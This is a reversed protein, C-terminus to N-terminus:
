RESKRKTLLEFMKELNTDKNLCIQKKNSNLNELSKKWVCLCNEKLEVFLLDINNSLEKIEEEYKYINNKLENLANQISEDKLYKNTKELNSLKKEYKSLKLKSLERSDNLPKSTSNYYEAYLKLLDEIVKEEKSYTDFIVKLNIKRDIQDFQSKTLSKNNKNDNKKTFFLKNNSKYIEELELKLHETQDKLRKLSFESYIEFYQNSNIDNFLIDVYLNKGLSEFARNLYLTISNCIINDQLDLNKTKDTSDNNIVKLLDNQFYTFIYGKIPKLEKPYLAELTQDIQIFQQHITFFEEVSFVGYWQETNKDDTVVRNHERAVM